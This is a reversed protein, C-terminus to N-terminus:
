QWYIKLQTRDVAKLTALM